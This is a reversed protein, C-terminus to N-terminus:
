RGHDERSRDSLLRRVEDPDPAQEGAPESKLERRTRRVAREALAQAEEDDLGGLGLYESFRAEETKRQEMAM